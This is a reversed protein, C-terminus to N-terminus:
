TLDVCPGLTDLYADLAQSLLIHCLWALHGSGTIVPSPLYFAPQDPASTM